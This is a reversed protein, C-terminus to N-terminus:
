QWERGLCVSVITGLSGPSGSRVAANPFYYFAKPLQLFAALWYILPSGIRVEETRMNMGGADTNYFHWCQHRLLLASRLWYISPALVLFVWCLVAQPTLKQPPYPSPLVPNPPSSIAGLSPNTPAEVAM